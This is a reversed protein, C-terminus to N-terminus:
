PTSLTYTEGDLEALSCEECPCRLQILVDFLCKESILTKKKIKSASDSCHKKDQM